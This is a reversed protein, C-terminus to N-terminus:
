IFIEIKCPYRRNRRKCSVCGIKSRDHVHREKKARKKSYEGFFLSEIQIYPKTETIGNIEKTLLPQKQDTDNLQNILRRVCLSKRTKGTFDEHIIMERSINFAQNNKTLKFFCVVEFQNRESLFGFTVFGPDDNKDDNEEDYDEDAGSFDVDSDDEDSSEEENSNDEELSNWVVIGLREKVMGFEVNGPIKSLDYPIVKGESLIIHFSFCGNTARNREDVIFNRLILNDHNLFFALPQTGEYEEPLIFTEKWLIKISSSSIQACEICVSMGDPKYIIPFLVSERLEGNLRVDSNYTSQLGPDSCQITIYDYQGYIKITRPRKTPQLLNFVYYKHEVSDFTIFYPEFLYNPPLNWRMGVFSRQLHVRELRIGDSRLIKYVYFGGSSRRDEDVSNIIEKSLKALSSEKKIEERDALIRAIDSLSNPERGYKIRFDDKLLNIVYDETAMSKLIRMCCGASLLGDYPGYEDSDDMPLLQNKASAFVNGDAREFVLKSLLNGQPHDAIERLIKERKPTNEKKEFLEYLKKIRNM